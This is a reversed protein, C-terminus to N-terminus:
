KVHGFLYFDLAALDPSYPPHPAKENRQAGSFGVYPRADDAHVILKRNTRGIQTGCCVSAPDLIQTVYYSANFKFGKPRLKILHFGSPNWVIAIMM